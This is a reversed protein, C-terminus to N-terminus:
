APPPQDARYVFVGINVRDAAAADPPLARDQAEIAALTDKADLGAKACVDALVDPKSIDRDDGWYADFAALAFPELKDTGELLCCIRMTRVANVPFVSPRYHMRIGLFRAWDQQDKKNYASKAPVPAERANHVSPNVANFVGGVLHPRWAIDLGIEDRMARLSQFAFYTWPSSCDFFCEIEAM